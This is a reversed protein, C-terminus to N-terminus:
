KVLSLILSLCTQLLQEGLLRLFYCPRQVHYKKFVDDFVFSKSYIYSFTTKWDRPPQLEGQKSSAELTMQVQQLQQKCSYLTRHIVTYRLVKTISLRVMLKM